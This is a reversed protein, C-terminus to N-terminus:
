KNELERQRQDKADQREQAEAHGQGKGAIFGVLAGILTTCIDALASILSSRDGDPDIIADIFLGVTATLLIITVISVFAFVVFDSMNAIPPKPLPM